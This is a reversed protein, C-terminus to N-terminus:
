RSLPFQTKPRLAHNFIWARKHADLKHSRAIKEDCWMAGQCSLSLSDPQPEQLLKIKVTPWLVLHLPTIISKYSKNVCRYLVRFIVQSQTTAPHQSRASVTSQTFTVNKENFCNCMPHPIYNHYFIVILWFPPWSPALVGQVVGLFKKSIVHSHNQSAIPQVCISHWGRTGIPQVLCPSKCVSYVFVSSSWRQM